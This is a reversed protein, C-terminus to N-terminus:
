LQCQARYIYWNCSLYGADKNSDSYGLMVLQKNGRAKLQAQYATNKFLASMIKAAHSLDEATEFLPVLDMRSQYQTDETQWFLGQAKLVYLASLIDQVSTTMTLILNHCATEGMHNKALSAIDLMGLLRNIYFGLEHEAITPKLGNIQAPHLTKASLIEQCLTEENFAQVSVASFLLQATANIYQSDERLDLSAFHFGFVGLMRKLQSLKEQASRTYGNEKLSDEILNIDNIASTASRYTFPTDITVGQLRNQNAILTQEFRLQMLRLKLRYPERNIFYQLTNLSLNALAAEEIDAEISLKLAESPPTTEQSFSLHISVDYFQQIYLKLIAEYHKGLTHAFVKPTVNPNGDMDSGVWNGLKLYHHQLSVDQQYLVELTNQAEQYLEPIVQSHTRKIYGLVQKIEDEVKPTQWRGFHTAWLVEIKESLTDIAIQQNIGSQKVSHLQHLSEFLGVQHALLTQRLIQTPHATSVLRIELTNLIETIENLTAGNNKLDVLTQSLLHHTQTNNLVQHYGEATNALLLFLRFASAAKQLIAVKKEANQCTNLESQILKDIAEHGFQGSCYRSAKASQRLTEIFKFFEPGEHECIMKGLLAGLLRIDHSLSESQQTLQLPSKTTTVREVVPLGKRISQYLEKHTKASYDSALNKTLPQSM